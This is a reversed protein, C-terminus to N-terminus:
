PTTNRTVASTVCRLAKDQHEEDEAVKAMGKGRAKGRARGKAMTVEKAPKVM